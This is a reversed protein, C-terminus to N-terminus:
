AQRGSYERAAKHEVAEPTRGSKVELSMRPLFFDLNGRMVLHPAFTIQMPPCEKELLYEHLVRFAMRGQTRPRQYITAAVTGLRIEDVPVPFLDTTVITLQELMDLDRAARIVPISSETTVYIGTLNPEDLLLKRCREYSM